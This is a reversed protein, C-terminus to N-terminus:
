SIIGIQQKWPSHKYKTSNELDEAEANAEAQAYLISVTVNHQVTHSM